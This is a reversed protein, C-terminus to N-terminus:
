NKKEEALTRYTEMTSTPIETIKASQQFSLWGNKKCHEILKAIGIKIKDDRVSKKKNQLNKLSERHKMKDYRVSEYPFYKSFTSWSINPYVGAYSYKSTNKVILQRMRDSDYIAYSPKGTMGGLRKIHVLFDARSLPISKELQHVSNICIIFFIGKSRVQSLAIILKINDDSGSKRSNFFMGEDLLVVQGPKPNSILRMLRNMNWAYNKELTMTPDFFLGMQSAFVSKGSGSKGDVIIVASTLKNGGGSKLYEAKNKIVMKKLNIFNKLVEKPFYYRHSINKLPTGSLLAKVLKPHTPRGDQGEVRKQTIVVM